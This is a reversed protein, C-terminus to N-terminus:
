EENHSVAFGGFYSNKNVSLIVVVVWESSMHVELINEVIKALESWATRSRSRDFLQKLSVQHFNSITMSMKLERGILRISDIKSNMGRKKDLRMLKSRDTVM